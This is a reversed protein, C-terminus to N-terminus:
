RARIDYVPHIWRAKSPFLQEVVTIFVGLKYNTFCNDVLFKWVELFLAFKDTHLKQLRNSKVDFGFIEFYSNTM